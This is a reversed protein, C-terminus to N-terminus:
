KAEGEGPLPYNKSTKGDKRRVQIEGTKSKALSADIQKQMCDSDCPKGDSGTLVDRHAEVVETKAKEYTLAGAEMVASLRDRTSVHIKGHDGEHHSAGSVCVCAGGEVTYADPGSSRLGPVNTSSDGRSSQLLSNPLLHHATKGPCCNPSGSREYPVLM